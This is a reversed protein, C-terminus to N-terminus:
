FSGTKYRVHVQVEVAGLDALEASTACAASGSAGAACVPVWVQWAKALSEPHEVVDAPTDVNVVRFAFSGSVASTPYGLLQGHDRELYPKSAMTLALAHGGTGNVYSESDPRSLRFPFTSRVSAGARTRAVVTVDLVQVAWKDAFSTADVVSADGTAGAPRAGFRAGAGRGFLGFDFSARGGPTAPTGGAGGLWAALQAAVPASDGGLYLVRASPPVALELRKKVFADLRGWLSCLSSACSTTFLDNFAYSYDGGAGGYFSTDSTQDPVDWMASARQHQMFTSAAQDELYAGYECAYKVARSVKVPDDVVMRGDSRLITLLDRSHARKAEFLAADAAQVQVALSAAQLAYSAATAHARAQMLEQRYAKCTADDDCGHPTLQDDLKDIAQYVDYGAKAAAVFNGMTTSGALTVVAGALAGGKSGLDELTKWFDDAPPILGTYYAILRGSLYTIEDVAADANVRAEELKAAAEGAALSNVTAEKAALDGDALAKADAVQAKLDTSTLTLIANLKLDTAVAAIHAIESRLIPLLATPTAFPALEPRNGGFDMGADILAIRGRAENAIADWSATLTCPYALEDSGLADLAQQYLARATVRDNRRYARTAAEVLEQQVVMEDSAWAMMLYLENPGGPFDSPAHAARGAPTWSAYGDYSTGAPVAIHTDSSYNFCEGGVGPITLNYGDLGHSGRGMSLSGGTAVQSDHALITISGVPGGPAGDPAHAQFVPPLPYSYYDQRAWLLRGSPVGCSGDSAVQYDRYNTYCAGSGGPDLQYSAAAASSPKGGLHACGFCRPNMFGGTAGPDLSMLGYDDCDWHIGRTGGGPLDMSSRPLAGPAGNSTLTIPQGNVTEAAVIIQGGRPAGVGNRPRVPTVDISSGPTMGRLNRTLIVVNQGATMVHGTVDVENAVILVGAPHDVGGAQPNGLDISAAGYGQLMGTCALPSPPRCREETPRGGLASGPCPDPDCGARFERLDVVRHGSPDAAPMYLLMTSMPDIGSARLPTSIRAPLDRVRVTAVKPTRDICTTPDIAPTAYGLQVNPKPRGPCLLPIPFTPDITIPPITPRPVNSIPIISASEDAAVPEDGAGPDLEPDAVCGALWLAAVTALTRRPLTRM